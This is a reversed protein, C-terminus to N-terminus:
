KLGWVKGTCKDLGGPYAFLRELLLLVQTLGLDLYVYSFQLMQYHRCVSTSAHPIQPLCLLVLSRKEGLSDTKGQLTENWLHEINV